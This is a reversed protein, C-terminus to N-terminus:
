VCGVVTSKSTSILQYCNVLTLSVKYLTKMDTGKKEKEGESSDVVESDKTQNDVAQNHATQSDETQGDATQNDATQDGVTKDPVDGEDGVKDGPGPGGTEEKEVETTPM